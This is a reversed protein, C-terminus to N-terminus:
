ECWSFTLRVPHYGPATFADIGVEANSTVAASRMWVQVHAGAALGGRAVVMDQFVPALNPTTNVAGVSWALGGASPWRVSRAALTRGAPTVDSSTGSAVVPADASDEVYVMLAHSAPMWMATDQGWVELRVDTVQARAPIAASLGFRFAGWTYVSFWVGVYVTPRATTVSIEGDPHFGATDVQCDDEAARLVVTQSRMVCAGTDVVVDRPPPADPGVDPVPVDPVPVDLSSADSSAADLSSADRSAADFSPADRPEVVADSRPADDRPALANWDWACASATVSVCLLAALLRADLGVGTRM